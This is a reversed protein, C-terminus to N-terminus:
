STTSLPTPCPKRPLSVRWVVAEASTLVRIDIHICFSLVYLIAVTTKQCTQEDGRAQSVAGAVPRLAALLLVSLCSRLHM